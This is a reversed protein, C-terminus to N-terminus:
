RNAKPYSPPAEPEPLIMPRPIQLQRRLHAEILASAALLEHREILDLWREREAVIRPDEPIARRKKM